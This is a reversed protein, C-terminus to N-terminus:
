LLSDFESFINTRIEDGYFCLLKCDKNVSLTNEKMDQQYVFSSIIVLDYTEDIESYHKVPYTHKGWFYNRTIDTEFFILQSQISGILAGYANLLGETHRGVGYIGVKAKENSLPLKILLERYKKIMLRYSEEKRKTIEANNFYHKNEKKEVLALIKQETVACGLSWEEFGNNFQESLKFYSKLVLMMKDLSGNDYKEVGEKYQDYKNWVELCLNCIYQAIANVEVKMKNLHLSIYEYIELVVECLDWLMGLMNNSTMTSGNRVRRRYLVDSICCVFKAEQMYVFTFYNDEYFIEEPFYINKSKILETRYVALCASPFFSSPYCRSFFDMGTQGTTQTGRERNYRTFRLLNKKGFVEAEFYIADYKRKTIINSLTEVANPNLLDDSDVFLLYESSIHAIGNNRARGQKGNEQHYVKINPYRSRYKECIALSGDTSGDDVLVIESFEKTQSVLSKICEGLWKETNYIPVVVGIKIEYSNM